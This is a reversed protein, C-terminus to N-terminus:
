DAPRAFTFCCHPREGRQCQETVPRGLLEGVMAEAVLCLKPHGAVVQSFPCGAGRLSVRGAREQVEALGGLEQLIHLTKEVRQQLSAERLSPLHPAALQRGAERLVRDLEQAELRTELVALLNALVPGYAKAFSREAEATVEYVWEPKRTSPRSGAQRILGDRELRALNARIANDTLGLSSALENVSRRANRLLSLIKGRTSVKDPKSM